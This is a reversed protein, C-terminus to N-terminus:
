SILRKRASQPQFPRIEIVRCKHNVFRDWLYSEAEAATNGRTRPTFFKLKCNGCMAMSPTKEQYKLIVFAPQNMRMTHCLCLVPHSNKCGRNSHLFFAFLPGHQNSTDTLRRTQTLTDVQSM